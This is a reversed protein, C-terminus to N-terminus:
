ASPQRTVAVRVRVAFDAFARELTAVEAKRYLELYMRRVEAALTAAATTKVSSTDDYDSRRQPMERREGCSFTAM